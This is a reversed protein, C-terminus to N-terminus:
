RAAGTEEQVVRLTRGLPIKKEDQGVAVLGFSGALFGPVLLMLAASRRRLVNGAAALAVLVFVGAVVPLPDSSGPPAAPAVTESVPASGVDVGNMRRISERRDRVWARDAPGLKDLPVWVLTGDHKCLQVRDDRTQVFSAEIEFLGDVDKWVRLDPPHDHGPHAVAVDASLFLGLLTVAGRWSGM